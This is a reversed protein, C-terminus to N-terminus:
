QLLRKEADKALWATIPRWVQPDRTAEVPISIIAGGYDRGIVLYLGRRQRRNRVSVREGDDLVQRVRRATLGHSGIKDENEADFLFDAILPTSM